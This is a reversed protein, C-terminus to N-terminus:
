ESPPERDRLKRAPNGAVIEAPKVDKTVVSGAAVIANRGISVGALLTARAAVWAGSGVHIPRADLDFSRRRYNHSGTCFYVGQSVCVHSGITVDVINDIWVGQGIWVHDGVVLRWPHKIRVNPKITVGSGVTAGFRRLIWPKVSSLVFWGEEFLLWSVLIWMLRVAAGRGPHYDGTTYPALDVWAGDTGDNQALHSQYPNPVDSPM